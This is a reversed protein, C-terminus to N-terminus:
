RLRAITFWHRAGRLPATRHAWTGAVDDVLQEELQEIIYSSEMMSRIGFADFFAHPVGREDGGTPAFTDRDIAIGAGYRADHVSGFTAFLPAQPVLLAAIAQLARDIELPRGHLLAHTSLAAAFGGSAPLDAYGDSSVVDFGARVLADTNRGRGRGIELVPAGRSDRVREILALALPHPPRIPFRDPSDTNM